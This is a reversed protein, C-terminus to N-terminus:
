DAAGASCPRRVAPPTALRTRAPGRHRRRGPMYLAALRPLQSDTAGFGTDNMGLPHFIRDAFFEDLRQGSVVEIVRGLVDTAM